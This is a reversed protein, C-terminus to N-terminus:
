KKGEPNLIGEIKAMIEPSLKDLVELAGLNEKLQELRSAGTIVSSVRPNHAAWALALQSMTCGLEAAIPLLNKVIGDIDAHSYRNRLWSYAPLSLRSGEPVGNLYKGSLFGSALPSFTTLGLGISDYLEAFEKEVKDRVFMNYHPQEMQPLYFNRKDAIRWAKLLRDAPWESTGWYLAKGAAVIDNMARVTEEVPTDPDPRHCFLLDVHDLGLRELSGDIAEMLYKRNLTNKENPGEHLGWYLKTSVLYSGRRLGLKKIAAGMITEAKGGSYAQANDFFNIGSDYALKIMEASADIDVQPGYTVWSGLSFVSLKIGASGLRRYIM